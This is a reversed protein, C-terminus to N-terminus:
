HLCSLCLRSGCGAVILLRKGLPLDKARLYASKEVGSGSESVTGDAATAIYVTRAKQGFYELAYLPMAIFEVPNFHKPRVLQASTPTQSTVHYGKGVWYAIRDNM